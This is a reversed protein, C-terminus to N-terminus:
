LIHNNPRMGNVHYLSSQGASMRASRDHISLKAQHYRTEFDKYQDESLFKRAVVLTRLGSRAMNDCNEQLWDSYQIIQSMIVDAGKLLFLIERTQTDRLIIGM